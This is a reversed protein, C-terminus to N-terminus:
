YSKLKGEEELITRYQKFGRFNAYRKNDNMCVAIHEAPSAHGSTILRKALNLDNEINYKKDEGVITYSVRACHALAIHKKHWGYKIFYDRGYDTLPSIHWDPHIYKDILKDINSPMENIFPIHWEGEKLIKPESQTYTDYMAEALAMMHIEAQGKNINFWEPNNDELNINLFELLPKADKKSKLYLITGNTDIEYQPCRLDFFNEFDTATVIVTHWMFPELLRNCLQKTLDHKNLEEAVKVAEDRALEWNWKLHDLIHEQNFYETGQMGKHDKQWMIPIFPNTKVSEVMKEFPIARSSASNRSFTRHTNFEALIIRPFTIVMTTLRQGSESISDAVVKAEIKNM